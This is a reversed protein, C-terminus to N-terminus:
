VALFFNFSFRPFTQTTTNELSVSSTSTCLYILFQDHSNAWAVISALFSQSMDDSLQLFCFTLTYNLRLGFAQSGTFSIPLAPFLHSDQPGFVWSGPVGIDLTSSPHRLELHSFESKRQRKTRDPGEISQIVNVWAPSPADEKSM